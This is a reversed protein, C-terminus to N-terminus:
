ANYTSWQYHYQAVHVLLDSLLDMNKENNVALRTAVIKIVKCQILRQLLSNQELCATMIYLLLFPFRQQLM